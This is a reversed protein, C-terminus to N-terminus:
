DQRPTKDPALTVVNRRVLEGLFALVANQFQEETYPQDKGAKTAIEAISAKGDIIEVIRRGFEDLAIKHTRGQKYFFRPFFSKKPPASQGGSLEWELMPGYRRNVVRRVGPHLAPVYKLLKARDLRMAGPPLQEQYLKRRRTDDDDGFFRKLFGFM